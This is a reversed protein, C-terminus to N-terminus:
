IAKDPKSGKIIQLFLKLYHLLALVAIATPVSIMITAALHPIAPFLMLIVCVVFFCATAAKGFKDSPMVDDTRNYMLLAGIGLLGEKIFIIIISWIPIIGEITICALVTLGMLKDALPDLVRGLRTIQNFRRAIIGDLVDTLCAIAYVFAAFVYADQRDSFFVVAFVPVLILRFISLMNPVSM